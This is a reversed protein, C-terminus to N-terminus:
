PKLPNSFNSLDFVRDAAAGEFTFTTAGKVDTSPAFSMRVGLADCTDADVPLCEVHGKLADRGVYMRFRPAGNKMEAFVMRVPAPPLLTAPAEEYRYKPVAMLAKLFSSFYPNDADREGTVYGGDFTGDGDLDRYCQVDRTPRDIDLPPCYAYGTSLRYGFLLTGAPVGEVIPRSRKISADLLKVAMAPRAAETWATDNPKVTVTAAAPAFADLRVPVSGDEASRLKQAHALPTLAAALLFLFTGRSAM